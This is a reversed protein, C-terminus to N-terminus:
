WEFSLLAEQAISPEIPSTIHHTGDHQSARAKLFGIELDWKVLPSVMEVFLLEGM